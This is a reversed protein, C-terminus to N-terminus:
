PAKTKFLIKILTSMFRILLLGVFSVVVFIFYLIVVQNDIRNIFDNYDTIFNQILVMPILALPFAFIIAIILWIFQKAFIIKLKELM